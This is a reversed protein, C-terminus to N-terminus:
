NLTSLSQWIYWGFVTVYALVSLVGGIRTAHTSSGNLMLSVPRAMSDASKLLDLQSTTTM